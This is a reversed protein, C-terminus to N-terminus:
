KFEQSKVWLKKMVIVKFLFETVNLTQYKQKVILSCIFIFNREYYM